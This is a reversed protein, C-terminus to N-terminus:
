PHESHSSGKEYEIHLETNNDNTEITKQSRNLKIEERLNLLIQINQLSLSWMSYIDPVTSPSSLNTEDKTNDDNVYKDYSSM